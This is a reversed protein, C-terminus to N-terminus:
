NTLASSEYDKPGCNLDTVAWWKKGLRRCDQGKQQALRLLRARVSAGLDRLKKPEPM